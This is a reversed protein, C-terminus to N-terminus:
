FEMSTRTPENLKIRDSNRSKMGFIKVFGPNQQGYNPLYQGTRVGRLGGAGEGGAVIGAGQDEFLPWM